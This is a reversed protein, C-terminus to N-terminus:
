PLVSALFDTNVGFFLDNYIKLPAKLIRTVNDAKTGEVKTVKGVFRRATFIFGGCDLPAYETRVVKPPDVRRISILRCSVGDNKSKGRRPRCVRKQGDGASQAGVDDAHEATACM